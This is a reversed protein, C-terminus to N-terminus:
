MLKFESFICGRNYKGNCFFENTSVTGLLTPVQDKSGKYIEYDNGVAISVKAWKLWVVNDAIRQAEAQIYTAAEGIIKPNPPTYTQPDRWIVESPLNRPLIKVYYLSSPALNTATYKLKRNPLIEVRGGPKKARCFHLEIGTM